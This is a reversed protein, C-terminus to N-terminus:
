RGEYVDQMVWRLDNWNSPFYEMNRCRRALEEKQEPSLKIGLDQENCEIDDESIFSYAIVGREIVTTGDDREITVTM